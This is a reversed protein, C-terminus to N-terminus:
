GNLLHVCWAVAVNTYVDIGCGFLKFFVADTDYNAILAVGREPCLELLIKGFLDVDKDVVASM